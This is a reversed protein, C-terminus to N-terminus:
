RARRARWAARWAVYLEGAWSYRLFVKIRRARTGEVTGFGFWSWNVLHADRVALTHRLEAVEDRLAGERVIAARQADLLLAVHHEVGELDFALEDARARAAELDAVRPDSPTPVPLPVPRSM